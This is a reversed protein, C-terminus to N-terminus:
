SSAGVDPLASETDRLRHYVCSGCSNRAARGIGTMFALVMSATVATAAAAAWGFGYSQPYFLDSEQERARSQSPTWVDAPNLLVVQVLYPCCGLQGWGKLAMAHKGLYM